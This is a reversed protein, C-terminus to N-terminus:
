YIRVGSLFVHWLWFPVVCSDGLIGLVLTVIGLISDMFVGSDLVESGQPTERLHPSEDSRVRECGAFIRLFKTDM